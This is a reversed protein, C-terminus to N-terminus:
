SSEADAAAISALDAFTVVGSHNLNVTKRYEPACRDLLETIAKTDGKQANQRLMLLWTRAREAKARTVRDDFDRYRERWRAFTAESIGSALAADRDTLGIKLSAIIEEARDPTYKSPRAM